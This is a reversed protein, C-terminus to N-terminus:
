RLIFVPLRKERTPQKLVHGEKKIGLQPATAVRFPSLKLPSLPNRFRVLGVINVCCFKLLLTVLKRTWRYGEASTRDASDFVTIKTTTTTKHTIKSIANTTNDAATLPVRGLALIFGLTRCTLFSILSSFNPAPYFDFTRLPEHQM